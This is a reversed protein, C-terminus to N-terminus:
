VGLAARLLELLVQVRIVAWRARLHEPRDEPYAALLLIALQEIQRELQGLWWAPPLSLSM